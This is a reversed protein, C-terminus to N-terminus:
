GKDAQDPGSGAPPDPVSPRLPLTPPGPPDPPIPPESLQPTAPYPPPPPYPMPPPYPPPAYPPYPVSLPRPRRARARSPDVLAAARVALRLSPVTALLALAVAFRTRLPIGYLWGILPLGALLVTLLFGGLARRCWRVTAGWHRAGAFLVVATLAGGPLVVTLVALVSAFDEDRRWVLALLAVGLLMSLGGGRGWGPGGGGRRVALHAAVVIVTFGLILALAVALLLDTQREVPGGGALLPPDGWLIAPSGGEEFLFGDRQWGGDPLRRLFGDRGNAVLVEHGGGAAPYVILDRSAFHKDVNGPNPARRALEERRADSVEWAVRWSAGADDTQEVRLHGAVTRYCRHPEAPVCAQRRGSQDSLRLQEAETAPRWTAAASDSVAWQGDSVSSPWDSTSYGSGLSIAPKGDLMATGLAYPFYIASTAAVALLAPPLVVLMRALRVARQRVPRQRARTWSWWALGLAPLTLLDTRDARVLSPGALATWASSAVEAAYGSSKVVAFGAGVAVLGALAAARAPLRPVLLTLLVAVLAPALVLGAVDSVKGTVVGPFASKLVHDNVVLVVLALLTSPHCLWSLATPAGDRPTEPGTM